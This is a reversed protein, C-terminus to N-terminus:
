LDIIFGLLFSNLMRGWGVAIRSGDSWGRGVLCATTQKCVLALQSTFCTSLNLVHKTTLELSRGSGSLLNGINGFGVFLRHRRDSGHGISFALDCVPRYIQHHMLGSSIECVVFVVGFRIRLVVLEWRTRCLSRASISRHFNFLM